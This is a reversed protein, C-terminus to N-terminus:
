INKRIEMILKDFMAPKEVFGSMGSEAARAREEDM